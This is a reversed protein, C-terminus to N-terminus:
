HVNKSDTPHETFLRIVQATREFDDDKLANTLVDPLDMGTISEKLCAGMTAADGSFLAQSFRENREKAAALYERSLIKIGESAYEEVLRDLRAYVNLECYAPYVKTGVRSLQNFRDSFDVNEFWDEKSDFYHSEHIEWKKEDAIIVRDIGEKRMYEEFRQDEPTAYIIGRVVSDINRERLCDLLGFVREPHDYKPLYNVVAVDAPFSIGLIESQPPDVVMWPFSHNYFFSQYAQESDKLM